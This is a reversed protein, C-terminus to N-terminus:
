EKKIKINEDTTIKIKREGERDAATTWDNPEGWKSLKGESFYLIYSTDWGIIGDSGPKCLVYEYAEVNRNAEDKFAGRFATPQGLKKIVEQKSMGLSLTNLRRSSTACGSLLSLSILSVMFVILILGKKM